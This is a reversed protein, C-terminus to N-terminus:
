EDEKEKRCCSRMTIPLLTTLPSSMRRRREVEMKKEKQAQLM